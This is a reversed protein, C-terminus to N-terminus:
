RINGGLDALTLNREPRYTDMEIGNTMVEKAGGMEITYFSAENDRSEGGSVLGDNQDQRDSGGFKRWKGITTDQLPLSM